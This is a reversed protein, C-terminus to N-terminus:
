FSFDLTLGTVPGAVPRIRLATPSAPQESARDRRWGIAYAVAGGVLAAAGSAIFVKGVTANRQGADERDQLAQTWPDGARAAAELDDQASSAAVGFGVGTAVLAVGTAGAILGALKLSRGSPGGAVDGVAVDTTVPSTAPAVVPTGDTADNGGNIDEPTIPERPPTEAHSREEALLKETEDRLAAVEAANPADPKERLYANFFFVAQEYDRKGRYAQAINFLFDPSGHLRYAAKWETIARDFDGVNYANLGAAYHTRAEAKREDTTPAQALVPDASASVMAFAIGLACVIRYSM